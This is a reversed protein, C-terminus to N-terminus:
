PTAPDRPSTVVISNVAHNSLASTLLRVFTVSRAAYTGPLLITKSSSSVAFVAGLRRPGRRPPNSGDEAAEVFCSLSLSLSLSPPLANAHRL